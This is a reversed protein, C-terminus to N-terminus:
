GLMTAVGAALRAASAANSAVASVPGKLRKAMMSVWKAWHEVHNDNPLATPLATVINFADEIDRLSFKEVASTGGLVNLVVEVGIATLVRACITTEGTCTLFSQFTEFEDERTASFPRPKGYGLWDYPKLVTTVGEGIPIQHVGSKQVLDNEDPSLQDLSRARIQTAVFQGTQIISGQSRSLWATRGLMVVPPEGGPITSNLTRAMSSLDERADFGRWAKPAQLDDGLSTCVLGCTLATVTCAHLSASNTFLWRVGTFTVSVTAVISTTSRTLTGATIWTGSLNRYQLACNPAGSGSTVTWSGSITVSNGDEVFKIPTYPGNTSPDRVPAIVYRGAGDAPVLILPGAVSVSPMGPSMVCRQVQAPDILGTDLVNNSEAFDTFEDAQDARTGVTQENDSTYLPTVLSPYIVIDTKKYATGPGPVNILFRSNQTLVQYATGNVNVIPNSVGLLQYVNLMSLLVKNHAHNFAVKMFPSFGALRDPVPRPVSKVNGALHKSVPLKTPRKAKQAPKKQSGKAKAHGVSPNYVSPPRSGGPVLNGRAGYSFRM